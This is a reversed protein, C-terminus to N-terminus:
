TVINQSAGLLDNYVPKATTAPMSVTSEPIFDESAQSKSAGEINEGYSAVICPM